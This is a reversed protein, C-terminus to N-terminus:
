RTNFPRTGQKPVKTQTFGATTKKNYTPNDFRISDMSDFINLFDDFRIQRNSTRSMISEFRIARNSTQSTTSDFSEIRM